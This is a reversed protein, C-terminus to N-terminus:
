EVVDEFKSGETKKKAKEKAAQEKRHERYWDDEGQEIKEVNEMYGMENLRTSLDDVFKSLSRSCYNQLLRNKFIGKIFFDPIQQLEKVKGTKVANMTLAIQAARDRFESKISDPLYGILEIIVRMAESYAQKTQLQKVSGLGSWLFQVYNFSVGKIKVVQTRSAQQKSM